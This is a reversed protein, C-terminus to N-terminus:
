LVGMCAACTKKLFVLLQEFLSFTVAKFYLIITQLILVLVTKILETSAEIWEKQDSFFKM